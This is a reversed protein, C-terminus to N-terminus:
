IMGINFTKAIIFIFEDDSIINITIIAIQIATLITWVCSIGIYTKKNQNRNFEIQFYWDPKDTVFDWVFLCLM